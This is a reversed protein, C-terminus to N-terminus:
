FEVEFEVRRNKAKNEPTNNPVVPRTDGYGASHMRSESVGKDKLYELVEAARDQSLKLNKDSDGDNDTHGKIFLKYSPNDKMIKVIDNLIPYSTQKIKSENTEFEIGNLAQKFVQKVEQKIEPCGNNESVGPVDPCNDMFDPVGDNDSDAPCGTADVKTGSPTDACKDLYDAVGDGDSDLPCGHSDVTVGSPTGPCRDNTDNVGDNDSDLACGTENVSTGYPTGPCQDLYDPVGDGDSDLPCGEDDVPAGAETDPCKDTSDQVGDGDSDVFDAEPGNRWSDELISKNRDEEEERAKRKDKRERSGIILGLGINFRASALKDPFLYNNKMDKGYHLPINDVAAFVNIFAFNVNVGAGVVGWKGNMMSYIGNVSLMRLPHLNASVSFEQWTKGNTLTTKSLFGVSLIKILDFSAGAYIKTNLKQKFKDTGNTTFVEEAEGEYKKFDLEGPDKEHTITDRESGKFEAGTYHFDKQMKIRAVNQTYNIHGLDKISAALTLRKFPKYTGGLDLAFGKNGKFDTWEVDDLENEVRLKGESNTYAVLGPYSAMIEAKGTLVWEDISGTIKIDDFDTQICAGGWLYKGTVGLTLKEGFQHAFTVGGEAYGYADFHLLSADFNFTEDKKMGGLVVDFISRPIMTNVGCQVGVSFGLFSKRGMRFGFDFVDTYLNGFIHLKDGMADLFDRQGKGLKGQSPDADSNLAKDLFLYTKGNMNKVVDSFTLSKNGFDMAVNGVVSLYFRQDPMMAPNLHHQRYNYKDFYVTNSIQAQATGAVAAIALAASIKIIKKM